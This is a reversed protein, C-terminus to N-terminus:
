VWVVPTGLQQHTLVILDRYSHWTFAKPEHRRGHYVYPPFFMRPRHGPRYCLVGALNVWGHSSGRM